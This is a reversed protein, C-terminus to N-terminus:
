IRMLIRYTDQDFKHASWEVVGGLFKLQVGMHGGVYSEVRGCMECLQLKPKPNYYIYVGAKLM